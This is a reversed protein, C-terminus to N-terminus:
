RLSTTPEAACAGDHYAASAFRFRGPAGNGALHPRVASGPAMVGAHMLASIDGLITTSAAWYGHGLMDCRFFSADIANVNSPLAVKDDCDVLGARCHGHLERSLQLPEDHHSGYVTLGRAVTAMAPVGEWFTEADIDPAAFVVQGVRGSLAHTGHALDQLATFALRNGMSHAVINVTPPVDSRELLTILFDRFHEAGWDSNTEDDIYKVPAHKSPWSYALPITQPDLGAIASATLRVPSAFDNAYGHLFITVSTAAPYAAHMASAFTAVDAATQVGGLIPGAVPVVGFHLACTPTPMCALPPRENTYATGVHTLDSGALRDTVIVTTRLTASAGGRRVIAGIAIDRHATQTQTLVITGLAKVTGRYQAEIAYSGPSVTPPVESAPAPNTFRYRGNADSLTNAVVEGGRVLRVEVHATPTAVGSTVRGDLVVVRALSPAIPNADTELTAGSALGVAFPIVATAAVVVTVFGFSGIGKM